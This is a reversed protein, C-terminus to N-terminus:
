SPRSSAKSISTHWMSFPLGQSFRISAWHFTSSRSASALNSRAAVKSSTCARCAANM